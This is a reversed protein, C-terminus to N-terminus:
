IGWGVEYLIKLGASKDVQQNEFPCSPSLVCGPCGEKCECKELRERVGSLWREARRYLEESLGAGGPVEDFVYIVPVRVEPQFTYFASGLDGRDCEAILPAMAFCLHELAHVGNNWDAQMNADPSPLLELRVGVTDITRPPLNLPEYSLAERRWLSVRRYGVVQMTVHLAMLRIFGRGLPRAQMEFLPQVCTEVVAETYYDVRIPEVEILRQPIDLRRVLYTEGRHLYIAGEHACQFARWGEMSGLVEGEELILYTEETGRLDVEGAPGKEAPYFWLGARRKVVGANEMEELLNLANEPFKDLEHPAIPREYAACALHAGLVHPNSPRILAGQPKEHVVLEPHSSIYQELPDDRVVLVALGDGEARGARGIQQRFSNVTGPYGNLVVVDLHGVDVGLEMASTSSLALLDGLFLRREIERRQEPTYGARYSEIKQALGQDGGDELEQRVYALLLEAGVRSRSFIIARAGVCMLFRTVDASELLSSRRNIEDIKPPNWMVILREGRPSGDVTIAYAERGTLARYHEQPNQLTASCGIIQVKVGLWECIRLLRRLVLSVHSGFLGSYAHLEDIVVFRLNKLFRAWLHHNPLIGVHLMDPNTLVIHASKRIVTRERRPTDGDYTAFRIGQPAIQRLKGLQDQALAKTPFLYFARGAPEGALCSLVPLNYCLTKGSGTGTTVVVDKGECVRNFSEAQHLFLKTIGLKELRARVEPDLPYQLEGFQAEVPPLAIISVIQGRYFPAKKIEEIIESPSLREATGSGERTRRLRRNM